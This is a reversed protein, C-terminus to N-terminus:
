NRLGQWSTWELLRIRQSRCRGNGHSGFGRGRISLVVGEASVPYKNSLHMLEGCPCRLYVWAKGKHSRWCWELVEPLGAEDRHKYLRERVRPREDEDDEDSM